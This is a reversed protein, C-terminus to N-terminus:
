EGHEGVHKSKFAEENMRKKAMLRLTGWSLVFFVLGIAAYNGVHVTFRLGM